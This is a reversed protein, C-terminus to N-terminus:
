IKIFETYYYLFTVGNNVEGVDVRWRMINGNLFSIEDTIYTQTETQQTDNDFYISTIKYKGEAVKEWTGSQFVPNVITIVCNGNSDPNYNFFDFNGDSEFISRSQRQCNTYDYSDINGNDYFDVQKLPQWEGIIQDITTGTGTEINSNDDNKSCSIFLVIIILPIINKM